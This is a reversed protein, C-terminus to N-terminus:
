KLLLCRRVAKIKNNVSLKYLYIGSSVKKDNEDKSNWIVTHKGSVLFDCVLTKVRQGKLNYITLEVQANNPIFFQIKTTPNFPNPYNQALYKCASTVDEDTSVPLQRYKLTSSISWGLYSKVYGTVYINDSNDIVIDNSVAEGMDYLCEAGAYRVIWKENGSSDYKVTAYEICGNVNTSSGTVYINGQSDIELANAEDGSAAGDYLAVWQENGAADYKVTAFDFFNTSWDGFSMGTVYVNGELDVGIDRAEDFDDAYGNYISSWQEIGDSSYKITIYDSTYTSNISYGTVYVNGEEDITISEGYDGDNALGDYTTEWLQTGNSDFKVTTLDMNFGSNESTGTIYVCGSDDVTGANGYDVGGVPGDYTAVWQEEGTASYKIAIYDSNGSINTCNGMIYINGLADVGINSPSDLDNGAGNYRALWIENGDADYKITAIDKGSGLGASIGTVIINGMNDIVIDYLEDVGDAPGNYNTSWIINGDLDYKVTLFDKNTAATLSSGIAYLYGSESFALKTTQDVSSGPGNYNVIIQENGSYDYKIVSYDYDSPGKESLGMVWISNETVTIGNAQDDKEVPSDYIAVWEENGNTDYKVTAYDFMGNANMSSGTVLVNGLSDLTLANAYNEYGMEGDYSASWLLTGSSDYKLTVYEPMFNSNASWGIVFINGENDIAIDRGDDDYDGSGNFSAEWQFIGDSNFKVTKLDTSYNQNFSAGTVYINGSDDLTTAHLEDNQNAPSNYFAAWQEVGEQNYKIITYDLSTQGQSSGTV